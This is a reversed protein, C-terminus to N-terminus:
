SIRAPFTERGRVSGSLLASHFKQILINDCDHRDEAREHNQIVHYICLKHKQLRGLVLIEVDHKGKGKNIQQREALCLGNCSLDDGEKTIPREPPM